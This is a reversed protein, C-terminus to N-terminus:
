FIRMIIQVAGQFLLFGQQFGIDMFQDMFMTFIMSVLFFIAAFCLILNREASLESLSMKLATLKGLVTLAFIFYDITWTLSSFFPVGELANSTLPLRVLRIPENEIADEKGIDSAFKKRKERKRVQTTTKNNSVNQAFTIVGFIAM